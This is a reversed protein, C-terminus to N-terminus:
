APTGALQSLDEFYRRHSRRLADENAAELLVVEREIGQRNLAVELELRADEARRRESDAFKLLEVIRGQQRDYDILFFM